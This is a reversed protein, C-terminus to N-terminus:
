GDNNEKKIGRKILPKDYHANIDNLVHKIQNDKSLSEQNEFLNIQKFLGESKSLNSASVGLLHVPNADYLTDFLHEVIEFIEYYHDTHYSLTHHKSHNHYDKDRLTVAITKAALGHNKLREVVRNTLSELADIMEQYEHLFGEFTKSNGISQHKNERQPDIMREDHGRAKQIFNDTQNGLFSVIKRREKFNALDGITEIGLLKLNPVTKKGIGHLAEIPLPWLKEKVNRKRLITIGLPKKYDSAMKALFMNPAIGISVPLNYQDLLDDQITKAVDYPHKGDLAETMDLYGEDISAPELQDTYTKLYDFFLTSYKEYLPFNTPLVKIQPCLQKAESLPMASRVGFKRAEYNATTLIGRDNKPGIGLPINKLKPNEAMECSAFFANLDIHFIVKYKKM